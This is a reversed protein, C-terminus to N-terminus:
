QFPVSIGNSLDFAAGGGQPDRFWAQFDWRDGGQIVGANGPNSWDIDTRLVGAGTSSVPLRIVPFDVCRFGNGFPQVVDHSDGFFFVGFQGSPVPSAELTFTGVGAITSGSAECLAAAGTSNPGSTCFPEGITLDVDLEYETCFIAQNSYFVRMRTTVAQSSSNTWELTETLGPTFPSNYSGALWSSQECNNEYLSMTIAAQTPTGLVLLSGGAPVVIEYIDVNGIHINVDHVGESIPPATACDENPEFADGSVVGCPDLTRTLELDYDTCFGEATSLHPTATVRVIFVESAASDNYLHVTAVAGLTIGVDAWSAEDCTTGRWADLRVSGGPSTPTAAVETVSGPDVGVLFFDEDAVWVSEGLTTGLGLPIATACTDNDEHGQAAGPACPSAEFTLDLTYELCGDHTNVVNVWVDEGLASDWILTVAPISNSLYVFGLQQAQSCPAGSGDDEFLFVFASFEPVQNELAFDLSLREGAGITMRYFDEDSFPELTLGMHTGTVVTAATACTDNPEFADPTCQAAAPAGLTALALAIHLIPSTM